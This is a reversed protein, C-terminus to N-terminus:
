HSYGGCRKDKDDKGVFRVTTGSACIENRHFLVDSWNKMASRFRTVIMSGPIQETLRISADDEAQNSDLCLFM